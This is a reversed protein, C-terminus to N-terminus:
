CCDAREETIVIQVQEGGQGGTLEETFGSCVEPDERRVPSDEGSTANDTREGGVACIGEQHRVPSGNGPTTRHSNLIEGGVVRREDEVPDGFSDLRPPNDSNAHNFIVPGLQYLNQQYGNLPAERTLPLNTSHLPDPTTDDRRPNPELPIYKSHGGAKRHKSIAVALIILYILWLLSYLM